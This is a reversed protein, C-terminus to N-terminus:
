RAAPRGKVKGACYDSAKRYGAFTEQFRRLLGLSYAEARQREQPTDLKSDVIRQAIKQREAMAVHADRVLALALVSKEEGRNAAALCAKLAEDEKIVPGLVANISRLEAQRASESMAAGALAPLALLVALLGYTMRNM